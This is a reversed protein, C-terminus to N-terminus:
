QNRCRAAITVRKTMDPSLTNRAHFYKHHKHMLRVSGLCHLPGQLSPNLGENGKYFNMPYECSQSFFLYNYETYGCTGQTVGNRSVPWPSKPGLQNPLLPHLLRWGNVAVVGPSFLGFFFYCEIQYHNNKTPRKWDHQLCYITPKLLFCSANNIWHRFVSGLWSYWSASTRIQELGRGVLPTKRVVTVEPKSQLLRITEEM